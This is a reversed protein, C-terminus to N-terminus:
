IHENNVNHLKEAYDKGSVQWKSTVVSSFMFNLLIKVVEFYKLNENSQM